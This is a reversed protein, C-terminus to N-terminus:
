VVPVRQQEGVTDSDYFQSWFAFLAHHFVGRNDVGLEQKGLSNLM